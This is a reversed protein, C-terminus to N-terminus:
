RGIMRRRGPLARARRSTPRLSAALSALFDLLQQAPLRAQRWCSSLPRRFHPLKCPGPEALVASPIPFLQMWGYPIKRIAADEAHCSRAYCCEGTKLVSAARGCCRYAPARLYSDRGSRAGLFALKNTSNGTSELPALGYPGNRLSPYRGRTSADNPLGAPRTGRCRLRM